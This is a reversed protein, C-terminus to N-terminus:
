NTSHINFESFQGSGNDWQIQIDNVFAARPGRKLYSLFDELTTREGEALVEVKGEYTNRVWGYIGLLNAKEMVFFRFGVGQVRGDILVHLRVQDQSM